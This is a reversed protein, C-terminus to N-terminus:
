SAVAGLLRTMHCLSTSPLDIDPGTAAPREQHIPISHHYGSMCHGCSSISM